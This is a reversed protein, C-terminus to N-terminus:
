VEDWTLGKERAKKKIAKLAATARRGKVSVPITLHDISQGDIIGHIHVEIFKDTHRDGECKLLVEAFNATGSRIYEGLKAVALTHKEDWTARFGPPNPTTAKLDNNMVFDFSNEELLTSKGYMGISKLRISCNGYSDLGKGNLSLAAYRVDKANDGFLMSETILRQRHNQRAAPTRIQAETMLRYNSLLTRDDELFNELFLEDVNIVAKADAKVAQEFAEVEALANNDVAMAKATRYRGQLTMVEKTTLLERILINGLYEHCVPCHDQHYAIKANCKSNPCDLTDDM